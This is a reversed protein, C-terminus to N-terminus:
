RACTPGRPRVVRRRGRGARPHLGRPRGRRPLVAGRRGPADIAALFAAAVDAAHVHVMTAVGDLPVALPEGAALTRWVQPDLNGVPNVVHWGPGSIHGPHLVTAPLRDSNELM